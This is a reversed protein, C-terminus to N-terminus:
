LVGHLRLHRLASRRLARAAALLKPLMSEGREDLISQTTEIMPEM